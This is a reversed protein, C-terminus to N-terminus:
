TCTPTLLFFMKEKMYRHRWSHTILIYVKRLPIDLKPFGPVQGIDVFTKAFNILFALHRLNIVEFFITYETNSCSFSHVMYQILVFWLAFVSYAYRLLKFWLIQFERNLFVYILYLFANCMHILLTIWQWSMVHSFPSWCATGNVITKKFIERFVMQSYLREEPAARLRIEAGLDLRRRAWIPVATMILLFYVIIPWEFSLHWGICECKCKRSWKQKGM